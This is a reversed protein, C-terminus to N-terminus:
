SGKKEGSLVAVVAGIILALLIGNMIIASGTNTKFIFDWLPWFYGTVMLLFVTFSVALIGIWVIKWGKNLVDGDKKGSIFGFLLMFVLLMVAFVAMFPMMAVILDRPGSFGILLLGTVMGIIANARKAEEGLLKTKQLIAFILTFVLVFPLIFNVFLPSIFFPVIYGDAM